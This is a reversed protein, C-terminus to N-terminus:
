FLDCECHYGAWSPVILLTKSVKLFDIRYTFPLTNLKWQFHKLRKQRFKSVTRKISFYHEKLFVGSVRIWHEFRTFHKLYILCTIFHQFNFLLLKIKKINMRKGAIRNTLIISEYRWSNPVPYKVYRNETVHRLTLSDRTVDNYVVDCCCRKFWLRLVCSFTVSLLSISVTQVAKIQTNRIRDFIAVRLQIIVGGHGNTLKNKRKRNLKFKTKNLPQKGKSKTHFHYSILNYSNVTSKKRKRSTHIFFVSTCMKTHM